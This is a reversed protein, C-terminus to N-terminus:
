LGRRRWWVLVGAVLVALPMGLTTGYFIGRAQRATLLVTPMPSTKPRITVMESQGALWTILNAAFDRNGQFAFSGNRAFTSNGVVVAVPVRTTQGGSPEDSPEDPAEESAGSSASAPAVPEERQIALALDLPGAVDEEDRQWRQGTVDREAWARDTSVMLATARDVSAARLAQAGPLVVGVNAQILPSTVDHWRLEPVPSLADGFLARGPDVVVGPVREVGLTALLGDIQPLQQNPLPDLWLALRGGREQVWAELMERERAALDTRPGAVVVVRADDPVSNTLALNLTKVTFGEGELYSRLESYDDYPSGEGHGELFYVVSGGLGSLELLARTVAQEGRFEMGGGYLSSTFLNYPEIKRYHSGMEVVVTGAARVEYKQALTPEREPDVMRVRVLDSALRYERLLDGLREAEETGEFAFAYLTVPQELRQLAQRSQPALQFRKDPSLDLRLPRQALMVNLLVVIGVVFLTFLMANAGRALRLRAGARTLRQVTDIRESDHM